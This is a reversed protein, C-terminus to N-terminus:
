NLGVRLPSKADQGAGVYSASPAAGRCSAQVLHQVSAPRASSPKGVNSDFRHLPAQGTLRGM